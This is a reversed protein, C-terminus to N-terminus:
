LIRQNQCLSEKSFFFFCKIIMLHRESGASNPVAASIYIINPNQCPAYPFKVNIEETVSNEVRQTSFRCLM